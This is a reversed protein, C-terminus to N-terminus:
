SETINYAVVQLTHLCPSSAGEPCRWFIKDTWVSSSVQIVLKLVVLRWRICLPRLSKRYNGIITKGAQKGEERGNENEDRM